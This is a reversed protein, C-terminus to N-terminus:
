FDILASQMGHMGVGVINLEFNGVIVHLDFYV